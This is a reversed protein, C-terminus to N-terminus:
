CHDRQYGHTDSEIGASTDAQTGHMDYCVADVGAVITAEYTAGKESQMAVEKGDKAIGEDSKEDMVVVGADVVDCASKRGGDGEMRVHVFGDVPEEPADVNDVKGPPAGDVDSNTGALQVASVGGHTKSRKRSTYVNDCKRKGKGIVRDPHLYPSSQVCLSQRQVEGVEGGVFFEAEVPHSGLQRSPVSEGVTTTDAVDSSQLPSSPSTPDVQVGADPSFIDTNTREERVAMMGPANATSNFRQMRAFELIDEVATKMAVAENLEDLEKKTVAYAKKEKVHAEREKRLADKARRLREEVSIVGYANYDELGIFAEVAEIRREDDRVEIVPIIAESWNYKGVRDMDEVIHVLDWVVGGACQPFLLGSVVLFTYLKKFLAVTEVINNVRCLELLVLVYNTYIHLDKQATRRRQRERSVHEEIARKLVEDAERRGNSREFAVHRGIAPFLQDTLACIADLACRHRIDVDVGQERGGDEIEDNRSRRKVEEVKGKGKVGLGKRHRVVRQGECQVDHRKNSRTEKKLHNTSSSSVEEGAFSKSSSHQSGGEDSSCYEPDSEESTRGSTKSSGASHVRKQGSHLKMKSVKGTNFAAGKM